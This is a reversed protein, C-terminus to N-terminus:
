YARGGSRNERGLGADRARILAQARGSVGLKDFIISLHNRATKESIQLQAAIEKNDFGHALAALVERERATLTTPLESPLISGSPLFTELTELFQRWAPESDLLVHNMSELPVFRAGPILAAVRRGEDFPIVADGRAHFILTPSRLQQVATTVDTEWFSRLLKVANAPTTTQRLLRDYASRQAESAQPIHLSTFFQSYARAENNWGLEIVKLRAAAEQRSEQTAGGALRGKTHCESLILRDVRDPSDSAFTMAAGGGAGAMAFLVFNKLGAANVVAELDEAYAHSAFETTERDSLGCGRWDYRVLTRHRSLFAIWPHWIPSDWDHELHHVWHQVWVLPPGSGCVSYAIGTGDRSKCFRIHEDPHPM